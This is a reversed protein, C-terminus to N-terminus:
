GGGPGGGEGPVAVGGGAPGSSTRTRQAFHDIRRPWCLLQLNILAVHEDAKTAALITRFM